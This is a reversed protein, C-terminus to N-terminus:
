NKAPRWGAARAEAETCFWREGKSVDIKTADYSASGPVHYIRGNSGINGKILCHDNPPLPGPAPVAQQGPGRKMDSSGASEVSHLDRSFGASAQMALICNATTEHSYDTRSAARGKEIARWEWPAVWTGPPLSWLGLRSARAIGEYACFSADDMYDRYAWADGQQVLWANVNESGLLVEAVLRDYRDQTVVDLAVTRGDVRSALAAKAQPGWPQDHEPADISHLRVRIPGSQLRVDITDGDIVRVVTGVLVPQVSDPVPRGDSQPPAPAPVYPVGAPAPAAPPRAQPSASPRVSTSEACSALALCAALLNAVVLSSACGPPGRTM